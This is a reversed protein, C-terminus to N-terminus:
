RIRAPINDIVRGLFGSGNGLTAEDDAHPGDPQILSALTPVQPGFNSAAQIGSALTEPDHSLGSAVRVWGDAPETAAELLTKGAGLAGVGPALALGDTGLAIAGGVSPEHAFAASHAGVAIGGAILAVAGALVAVPPFEVSLLAVGGATSSVMGAIDGTKSVTQWSAREAAPDGEIHPRDADATVGTERGAISGALSDLFGNIAGALQAVFHEQAAADAGDPLTVLEGYLDINQEIAQVIQEKAYTVDDAFAAAHAALARMEAVRSNVSQGIALIQRQWLHGAEDTWGQQLHLLGGTAVPGYVHNGLLVDHFATGADTWQQSLASLQDEDSEIWGGIRPRVASWLGFTDPPEPVAM